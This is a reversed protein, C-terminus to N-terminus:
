KSCIFYLYFFFFSNNVLFKLLTTWIGWGLFAFRYGSLYWRCCFSL